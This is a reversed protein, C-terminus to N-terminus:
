SSSQLCVGWTLSAYLTCLKVPALPLTTHLHVSAAASGAGHRSAPMSLGEPESASFSEMPLTRAVGTGPPINGAEGRDHSTRADAGPEQATSVAPAQQALDLLPAASMSILPFSSLFTALMGDGGGYWPRAGASRLLGVDGRRLRVEEQEGSKRRLLLRISTGQRGEVLATLTAISCLPGSSSVTGTGESDTGDDERFALLTDGDWIRGCREAPSGPIVGVVVPVADGACTNFAPFIPPTQSGRLQPRATPPALGEDRFEILIGLGHSALESRWEMRTGQSAGSWPLARLLKLSLFDTGRRLMLSVPTDAPGQLLHILESVPIEDSLRGESDVGARFCSKLVM